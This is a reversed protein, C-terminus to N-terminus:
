LSVDYGEEVYTGSAIRMDISYADAHGQLWSQLFNDDAVVDAPVSGDRWPSGDMTFAVHCMGPWSPRVELVEFNPM